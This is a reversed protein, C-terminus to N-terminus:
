IQIKSEYSLNTLISYLPYALTILAEKRTENETTDIENLWSFVKEILESRTQITDYENQLWLNILPLQPLQIFPKQFLTM